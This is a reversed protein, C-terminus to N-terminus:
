RAAEIAKVLLWFLAAGTIAGAVFADGRNM